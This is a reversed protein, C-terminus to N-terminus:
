HQYKERQHTKKNKQKEIVLKMIKIIMRIRGVSIIDIKDNQNDYCDDSNGDSSRCTLATTSSNMLSLTSQMKMKRRQKDQLQM